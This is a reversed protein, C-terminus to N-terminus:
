RRRYVAIVTTPPRDSGRATMVVRLRGDADFSWVEGWATWDGSDQTPGTYTGQEFVLAQEDWVVRHWSRPPAEGSRAGFVSGGITGIPYTSSSSTTGIM